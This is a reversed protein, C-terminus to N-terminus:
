PSGHLLMCHAAVSSKRRHDARGNVVATLADRLASVLEALAMRAGFSVDCVALFLLLRQLLFPILARLGVLLLSGHLRICSVLLVHQSALIHVALLMNCNILRGDLLGQSLGRVFYVTHGM